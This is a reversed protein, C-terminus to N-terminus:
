WRLIQVCLMIKQIIVMRFLVNENTVGQVVTALVRSSLNDTGKLFSEEYGSVCVAVVEGIFLLIATGNETRRNEACNLKEQYKNKKLCKTISLKETCHGFDLGDRLFLSFLYKGM